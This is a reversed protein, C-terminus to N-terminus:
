IVSAGNTRIVESYFRASNKLTRQLTAFDVHIIGFRKTFGLSWELNDLLSWVFYGRVDVGKELADGVARIHERLYHVRLPDEVVGDIPTPPAYFAAGNETIYIPTDGYQQRFWILIDTLASPFVEWGTETYIANPVVM